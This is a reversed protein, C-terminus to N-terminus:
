AAVANAVALLLTRHAALQHPVHGALLGWAAMMM